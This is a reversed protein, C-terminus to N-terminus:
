AVVEARRYKVVKQPSAGLNVNVWYPEWGERRPTVDMAREVPVSLRGREDIHEATRDM